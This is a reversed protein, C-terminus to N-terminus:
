LSLFKMNLVNFQEGIPLPLLYFLSQQGFLCGHATVLVLGTPQYHYHAVYGSICILEVKYRQMKTKIREPSISSYQMAQSIKTGQGPILGPCEATLASLGLWWIM